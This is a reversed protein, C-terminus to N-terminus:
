QLKEQGGEIKESFFTTSKIHNEDFELVVSLTTSFLMMMISLSIMTVKYTTAMNLQEYVMLMLWLFTYRPYTMQYDQLHNLRM